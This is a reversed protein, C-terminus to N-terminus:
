SGPTCWGGWSASCTAARRRSRASRCRRWARAGGRRVERLVEAVKGLVGELAPTVEGAVRARLADFAAADWAPGGFREVLWDVTAPLADAIVADLSGHPAGALALAVRNDLRPRPAPVTLLLLRRTGRVCRRRRRRETEMVAVGVTEGEDVLAPYGRVADGTGPLTM